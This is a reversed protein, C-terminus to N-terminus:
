GPQSSEIKTVNVKNHTRTALQLLLELYRQTIIHWDYQAARRPGASAMKEREGHDFLLHSIGNALTDVAADPLLRAVGGAFEPFATNNLAIVPAGCAMAELVPM